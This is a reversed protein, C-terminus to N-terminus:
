QQPLLLATLQQQQEANLIKKTQSLADQRIKVIQSTKQADSLNGSVKVKEGQEQMGQLVNRLSLKEGMSLGMGGLTSELEAKSPSSLVSQAYSSAALMVALCLFLIKKVGFGYEGRM